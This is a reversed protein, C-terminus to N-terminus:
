NGRLIEIFKKVQPLSFAEKQCLVYTRRILPEGNEFTCPRICGDFTGLAIEPLLGWGLGRRVMEVCTTVNDVCFSNKRPNLGQENIWRTMMASQALDTNHNVYLYESLPVNDYENAYILCIHEQSLLIQVGDWEYEGRLVALDLTGDLMQRYLAQSRGTTIHLNVKSYQRHYAALLDPLTYQAFNVSIGANLSGCIEDQMQNIQNRMKEMEQAAEISHALVIEGAPTLRIGQRSRLFMEIGLEREVTKIRKSLASQTIYLRDAAHTINGTEKLIRLMEFDKEDM